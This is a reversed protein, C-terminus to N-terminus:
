ASPKTFGWVLRMQNERVVKFRGLADDLRILARQARESHEYRRWLRRPPLRESARSVLYHVLLSRRFVPEVGLSLLMDRLEEVSYWGTETAKRDEPSIGGRRHYYAMLPRLLGLKAKQYLPARPNDMFVARGGPRLVRVAERLFVTPDELHHVFAYGYVLDLSADVFPLENADIAAYIAGGFKRQMLKVAGASYDSYVMRRPHYELFLLEKESDGNGVVLIDKGSVDGVLELVDRNMPYYTTEWLSRLDDTHVRSTAYEDEYFSRETDSGTVFDLVGNARLQRECRPCRDPCAGELAEHCEPCRFFAPSTEPV